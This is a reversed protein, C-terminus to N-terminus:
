PSAVQHLPVEVGLDGRAVMIGDSVALIEEFNDVAEQSEIKSIILPAVHGAPWHEAMCANIHGRIDEVQAATRIFSAAVFDMDNAIGYSIDAKDKDSMAPLDVSANPLNVGKREGIENTNDVVCVVEGDGVSEVTMGILGDDLLVKSGPGVTAAINGYSVFITSEDGAGDWKPDTSLTVKKGTEFLIKNKRNESPTEKGKCVELGGMRIEPGKTDLLIARMNDQGEFEGSSGALNTMRLEVEDPTAHSFNIRMVRMGAAVAQPLVPLHESAPGITAVIKTLPPRGNAWVTNTRISTRCISRSTASPLARNLIMTRGAVTAM